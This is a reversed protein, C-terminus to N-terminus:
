LVSLFLIVTGSVFYCVGRKQTHSFHTNSRVSGLEIRTRTETGTSLIHHSERDCFQGQMRVAALGPGVRVKKARMGWTSLGFGLGAFREKEQGRAPVGWLEGRHPSERAVALSLGLKSLQLRTNLPSQSFPM